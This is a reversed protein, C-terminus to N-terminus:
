PRLTLRDASGHWITEKVTALATDVDEAAPVAIDRRNDFECLLAFDGDGFERELYRWRSALLGVAVATGLSSLGACVFVTSKQTGFGSIKQLVCYDVLVSESGRNERRQGFSREGGRGREIVIPAGDVSVDLTFWAREETALVHAVVANYAPGGVLIYVGAETMSERIREVVKGNGSLDPPQYEKASVPNGDEGDVYHPSFAIECETPDHVTDLLGLQDLLARLPRSAPRTRIADRLLQASVYESQNMVPGYFGTPGAVGLTGGQLVYISSVMIRVKNPLHGRIGFLRRLPRSRRSLVAMVYLVGAATLLLVFLLNALFGLLVQGAAGQWFVEPDGM